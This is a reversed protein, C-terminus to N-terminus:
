GPSRRRERVGGLLRRREEMRKERGLAAVVDVCRHIVERLRPEGVDVGREAPRKVRMSREPVHVHLVHRLPRGRAQGVGGAYQAILAARQDGKGIRGFQEACFDAAERDDVDLVALDNRQTSSSM